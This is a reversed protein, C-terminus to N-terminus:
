VDGAMHTYTRRDTCPYPLFRGFHIACLRSALKLLDQLSALALLFSYVLEKSLAQRGEVLVSREVVANSGCDRAGGVLSRGLARTRGWGCSTILVLSLSERVRSAHAAVVSGLQSTPPILEVLRSNECFWSDEPKAKSNFGVCAFHFRGRKDRNHIWLQLQDDDPDIM